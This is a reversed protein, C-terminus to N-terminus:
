GNCAKILEALLEVTREMNSRLFGPLDRDNVLTEVEKLALEAFKTQYDSMTM